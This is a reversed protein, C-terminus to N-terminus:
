PRWGAACAIASLIASAVGLGIWARLATRTAFCGMAAAPWVFLAAITAVTVAEARALPLAWAIAIGSLVAVGYAGALAAVM